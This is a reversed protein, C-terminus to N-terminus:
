QNSKEVERKILRVINTTYVFQRRVIEEALRVTEHEKPEIVSPSILTSAEQMTHIGSEMSELITKRTDSPFTKIATAGGSAIISLTALTAAREEPSSATAYAASTESIPRLLEMAIQEAMEKEKQNAAAAQNKRLDGLNLGGPKSMAGVNSSVLLALPLILLLKKM